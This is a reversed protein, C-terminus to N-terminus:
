DPPAPGLPPVCEGPPSVEKQCRMSGDEAGACEAGGSEHGGDQPLGGQGRPNSSVYGRM